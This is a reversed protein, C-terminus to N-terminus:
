WRSLTLQYQLQVSVEVRLSVLHRFSLLFISEEIITARNVAFNIGSNASYPQLSRCAAWAMGPLIASYIYKKLAVRLHCNIM